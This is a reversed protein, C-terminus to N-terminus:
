ETGGYQVHGFLRHGGRSTSCKGEPLSVELSYHGSNTEMLDLEKGLLGLKNQHCHIVAFGKKLTSNGILLPLDADIVETRIIVDLVGGLNCPLSIVGKSPRREGGGFKYVRESKEVVPKNEQPLSLVYDKIWDQGAVTTPCACDVLAINRSRDKTALCLDELRSQVLLTLEEVGPSACDVM